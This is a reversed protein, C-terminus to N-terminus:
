ANSVAETSQVLVEEDPERDEARLVFLRATILRHLLPMLICMVLFIILLRGLIGLLSDNRELLALRDFERSGNSFAVAITDASLFKEANSASAGFRGEYDAGDVQFAYSFHYTTTKRGRSASQETIKDFSLAAEVVTHDSLISTAHVYSSIAAYTFFAMGAFFGITCLFGSVKSVKDHNAKALRISIM